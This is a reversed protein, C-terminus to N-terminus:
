NHKTYAAYDAAFEKMATRRAVLYSCKDRAKVEDIRRLFVPKDGDSAGAQAGGAILAANGGVQKPMASLVADFEKRDRAFIGFFLEAQAPPIKGAHEPGSILAEFEARQARKRLEANDRELTTVRGALSEGGELKAKVAAVLEQQIAGHEAKADLSVGLAKAITAVTENKAATVDDSKGTLSRVATIIDAESADAPLGLLKKLEDM